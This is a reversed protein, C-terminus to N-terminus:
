NRDTRWEDMRWWGRFELGEAGKSLYGDIPCGIIM